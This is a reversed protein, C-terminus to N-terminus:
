GQHVRREVVTVDEAAHQRPHLFGPRHEARSPQQRDEVPRRQRRAGAVLLPLGDVPHRVRRPRVDAGRPIQFSEMLVTGVGFTYITEDSDISTIGDHDPDTYLGARLTLPTTGLFAIYELGFHLAVEDDIAEFQGAVGPGQDPNPAPAIDLDSYTILNADAAIRFRDSVRWAFGLGLFDPVKYNVSTRMDGGSPCRFDPEADVEICGFDQSDGEIEFNGGDKYVLGVSFRGDPNIIVGVNFTVDTDTDDFTQRLVQEDVINLAQVDALSAGAELAAFEADSRYEITLDQLADVSLESF